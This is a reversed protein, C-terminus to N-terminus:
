LIVCWSNKVKYYEKGDITGYGVALVGHDLKHGCTKDDFVGSTYFQFNSSDAEIAVSVPGLAIAAKLQTENGKPVDVHGTIDVAPTCAMRCPENVGAASHLTLTM